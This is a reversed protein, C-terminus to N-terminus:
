SIEAAQFFRGAYKGENTYADKDTSQNNTM